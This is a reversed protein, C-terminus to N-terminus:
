PHPKPVFGRLCRAKSSALEGSPPAKQTSNAFATLRLPYVCFLRQVFLVAARM